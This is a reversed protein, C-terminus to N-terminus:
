TMGTSVPQAVPGLILPGGAVPTERQWIPLTSRHRTMGGGDYNPARTGNAEVGDSQCVFHQPKVRSQASRAPTLLVPECSSQGACRPIREKTARSDPLLDKMSGSRQFRLRVAGKARPASGGAEMPPIRRSGPSALSRQPGRWGRSACVQTRPLAKSACLGVECQAHHPKPMERVVVSKGIAPESM